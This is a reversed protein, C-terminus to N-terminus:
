RVGPSAQRGPIHHASVNLTISARAHDRRQSVSQVPVGHALTETAMFHRLTTCGSTRSRRAKAPEARGRLYFPARPQATRHRDGPPTATPRSSSVRPAGHAHHRRITVTFAFM